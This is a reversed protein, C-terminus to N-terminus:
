MRSQHYISCWIYTSTLSAMSALELGRGGRGRGHFNWSHDRVKM